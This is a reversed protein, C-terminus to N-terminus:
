DEDDLEELWQVTLEAAKKHGKSIEQVMFAEVMDGAGPLALTIEGAVTRICGDGEPVCTMTGKFSSVDKFLDLTVSWDLSQTAKSFVGEEIYSLDLKPAVAPENDKRNLFDKFTSKGWSVLKKMPEPLDETSSGSDVVQKLVNLGNTMMQQVHPPLEGKPTIRSKQHIKEEDDVFLLEERGKFGIEADLQATFAPDFFVQWYQDPTCKFHDSLELKKM